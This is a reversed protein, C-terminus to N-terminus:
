RYKSSPIMLNLLLSSNQKPINKPSKPKKAKTVPHHMIMKDDERNPENFRILPRLDKHIRQLEDRKIIDTISPSLLLSDSAGISGDRCKAQILM